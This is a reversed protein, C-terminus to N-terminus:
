QVRKNRLYENWVEEIDNMYIWALKDTGFGSVRTGLVEEFGRNGASAKAEQIKKKQQDLHEYM